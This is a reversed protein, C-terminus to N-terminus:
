NVILIHKGFISTILEKKHKKINGVPFLKPVYSGKLGIEDAISIANLLGEM